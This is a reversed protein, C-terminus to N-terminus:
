IGKDKGSKGKSRDAEANKFPFGSVRKDKGTRRSIRGESTGFLVIWGGMAALVFHVAVAITYTMAHGTTYMSYCYFAVACNYVLGITLAPLAYPATPNAPDTSTGSQLSTDAIASQPLPNTSHDFPPPLSSPPFPRVTLPVSGTLLLLLISFAVLTLGLSRSLYEELTTSERVDPSLLTIIINPSTILPIAEVIMWASSM